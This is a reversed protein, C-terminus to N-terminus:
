RRRQHYTSPRNPVDRGTRPGFQEFDCAQCLLEGSGARRLFPLDCRGCAKGVEDGDGDVVFHDPWVWETTGVLHIRWYMSGDRKQCHLLIGRRGQVRVRLGHRFASERLARRQDSWPAPM